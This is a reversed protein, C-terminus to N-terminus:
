GIPEGLGVPKLDGRKISELRPHCQSFLAANFRNIQDDTGVLGYHFREPDHHKQVWRYWTYGVLNPHTFARELAEAAKRRVRELEGVGLSPDDRVEAPEGPLPIIRFYDSAWSFEGNMLPLDGAEDAYAQMREYFNHRYNNATMVDVHGHQAHAIHVGPPAGFRCGLILHNPDHRFIAQRTLRFYTQAFHSSFADQDRGYGASDLVLGRETLARAQEHSHVPAGWNKTLAAPDNNYREMVFRWAAAAAPRDAPLALCAQLLTPKGNGANVEDGAGWIHDTGPQGWGLENDTFYGVLDRSAARPTCIGAAQRDIADRWAPDFVDPVNIGAQRIRAPEHVKNFELIDTYPVGRDFFEETVWAGAANFGLGRMKNFCADVFPTPDEGYLRGVTDHYPGPKALRGGQTGARNLGCVGVFAMPTDDPRLLWWHGPRGDAPATKGVRFFGPTGRLSDPDFTLPQPM